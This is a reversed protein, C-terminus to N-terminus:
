RGSQVRDEMIMRSLKKYLVLEWPAINPLIAIFSLSSNSQTRLSFQQYNLRTQNKTIGHVTNRWAGRDISKELCSCQLPYGYGKGPYRGQGPILGPDGANCASEKGDQSIVCCLPCSLFIHLLDSRSLTILTPSTDNPSSVSGRNSNGSGSLLNWVKNRIVKTQPTRTLCKM